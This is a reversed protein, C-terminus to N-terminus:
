QLKAGVRIYLQHLFCVSFYLLMGAEGLKAASEPLGVNSRANKRWDGKHVRM